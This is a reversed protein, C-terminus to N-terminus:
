WIALQKKLFNFLKSLFKAQTTIKSICPDFSDIFTDCELCSYVSHMCIIGLSM